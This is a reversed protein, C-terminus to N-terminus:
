ICFLAARSFGRQKAESYKLSVFSFDPRHGIGFGDFPCVSKRRYASKAKFKQKAQFTGDSCHRCKGVARCVRQRLDVRRYHVARDVGRQKRLQPHTRRTRRHFASFLGNRCARQAAVARRYFIFAHRFPHKNDFYFCINEPFARFSPLVYNQWFNHSPEIHHHCCGIDDEPLESPKEEERASANRVIEGDTATEKGTKRRGFILYAGYGVALAAAFKALLLPWLKSWSDPNAILIPIAEDSTSIYVALLTGVSLFGKAFLNTAMVSFGCQPVLGIGAGILPAFGGRLARSTKLKASTKSELIEILVYVLFLFPLIKLSDLLADLLVEGM